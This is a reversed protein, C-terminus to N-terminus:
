PRLLRTVVLNHLDTSIRKTVFYKIYSLFDQVSSADSSMIDGGNFISIFASSYTTNM